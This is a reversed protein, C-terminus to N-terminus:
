SKSTKMLFDCANREFKPRHDTQLISQQYCSHQQFVYDTKLYM